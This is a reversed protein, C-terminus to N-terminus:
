VSGSGVLRSAGVTSPRRDHARPPPATDPAPGRLGSASDPSSRSTRCRAWWRRRFVEWARSANTAVSGMLSRRAGSGAGASASWAALTSRRASYSSRSRRWSSSRSQSAGRALDVDMRAVGLVARPRKPPQPVSMPTPGPLGTAGVVPPVRGVSGRPVPPPARRTLVAETRLGDGPWGCEVEGAAIAM